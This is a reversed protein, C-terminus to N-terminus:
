RWWALLPNVPVDGPRAAASGGCGSLMAIVLVCLGARGTSNGKM